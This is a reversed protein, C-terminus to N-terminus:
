KSTVTEENSVQKQWKSLSPICIGACIARYIHGSILSWFHGEVIWIHLTLTWFGDEIQDGLFYVFVLMMIGFIILDYVYRIWLPYGLTLPWHSMPPEIHTAMAPWLDGDIMKDYPADYHSSGYILNMLLKLSVQLSYLLCFPWSPM